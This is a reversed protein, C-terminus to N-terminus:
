TAYKHIEEDTLEERLQISNDKIVVYVSDRNIEITSQGLWIAQNKLRSWRRLVLDARRFTKVQSFAVKSFFLNDGEIHPFIHEQVFASLKTATANKDLKVEYLPGLEWTWPNWERIFIHFANDPQLPNLM